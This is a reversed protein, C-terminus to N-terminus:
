REAGPEVAIFVKARKNLESATPLQKAIRARFGTRGSQGRRFRVQWRMRLRLDARM